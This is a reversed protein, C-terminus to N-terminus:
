VRPYAEPRALYYSVAGCDEDGEVAANYVRDDFGGREERKAARAEELDAGTYGHVAALTLIVEMVDALEALLEDRSNSGAVEAAEETLKAKLSHVFEDIGLKREFVRLGEMRMIEPLKDRILKEVRFRM